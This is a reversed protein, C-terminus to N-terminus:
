GAAVLQRYIKLYAAASPEWSFDKKMATQQMRKWDQPRSWVALAREIALWLAHAVPEEFVFGDVGENVTDRLGGTAHVIPLTGYRQSYMQNLGCPEFRSPMLFVDTGAEIRHSLGEDYGILTAVKGPYRAALQTFGAEIDAEGKGLIVLQAGRDILGPAIQLVWDLGKQFTLRSIVGFLPADPLNELGVDARLAAKCRKKGALGRASFEAPLHLDATPNWDSTDIGNLIGSIQAARDSLLGQMGMGLPEQQIELAYSPSVTTIHDAYYLGAKLLSLNGYYEVGNVAFSEPPLWLDALREPPFIGQFALNHITIVSPVPRGAFHLYAPALGTQWDNAHLLAPRWDLPSDALCLRMAAHSLLAFRWDNDSFDTGSAAQYLGGPRRYAYDAQLVYVPVRTDPMEGQLLHAAFDGPLGELRAVPRLNKAQDMVQPYGPLLIRCDVGLERLAAPLASSVDALGGTKILPRAESTVFLANLTQM